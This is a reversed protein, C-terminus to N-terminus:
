YLTREIDHKTMIQNPRESVISRQSPTLQAIAGTGIPCGQNIHPFISYSDMFFAAVSFLFFFGPDLVGIRVDEDFYKWKHTSICNGNYLSLM